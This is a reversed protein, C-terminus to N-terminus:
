QNEGKIIEFEGKIPMDPEGDFENNCSSCLCPEGSGLNIDKWLKGSEDEYVPRSWFDVGILKLKRM